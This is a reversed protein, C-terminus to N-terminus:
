TIIDTLHFVLGKGNRSPALFGGWTTVSGLTLGVLARTLDEGIAVARIELSVKRPHGDQMVETDSKLMLDLAPLGAPTHRMAGRELMQARLVLRNTM